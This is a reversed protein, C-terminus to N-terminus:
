ILAKKSLNWAPSSDGYMMLSGSGLKFFNLWARSVGITPLVNSYTTREGSLSTKM